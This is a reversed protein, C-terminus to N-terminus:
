DMEVQVIQECSRNLRALGELMPGLTADPHGQAGHIQFEVTQDGTQLVEGEPELEGMAQAVAANTGLWEDMVQTLDDIMNPEVPRDFIVRIVMFSPFPEVLDDHVVFPLPLRELATPPNVEPEDSRSEPM